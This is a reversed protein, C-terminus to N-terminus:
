KTKQFELKYIRQYELNRLNLLQETNFKILYFAYILAYFTIIRM